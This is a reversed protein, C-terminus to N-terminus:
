VVGLGDRRLASTTRSTAGCSSASASAARISCSSIAAAAVVRARGPARSSTSLTGASLNAIVEPV